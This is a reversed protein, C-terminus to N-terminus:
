NIKEIDCVIKSSCSKNRNSDKKCATTIKCSKGKAGIKALATRNYESTKKELEILNKIETAQATLTLSLTFVVKTVIRKM